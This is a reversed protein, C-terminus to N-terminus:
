TPVADSSSPQSSISRRCTRTPATRCPATRGSADTRDARPTAPMVSMGRQVLAGGAGASGGSRRGPHVFTAFKRCRRRRRCRCASPIGAAVGPRRVPPGILAFSRCRAGRHSHSISVRDVPAHRHDTVAEAPISAFTSPAETPLARLRLDAPVRDVDLSAPPRSQSPPTRRITTSCHCRSANSRGAPAVQQGAARRGGAPTRQVPDVARCNWGPRGPWSRASSRLIATGRIHHRGAVVM